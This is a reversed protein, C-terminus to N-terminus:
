ILLVLSFICGLFFFFFFGFICIPDTDFLSCNLSLTKRLHTMLFVSVM